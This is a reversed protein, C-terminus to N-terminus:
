TTLWVLAYTSRDVSAQNDAIVIEAGLSKVRDNIPSNFVSQRFIKYDIRTFAPDQHQLFLYLDPLTFCWRGQAVSFCQEQRIKELRASDQQAVQEFFCVLAEEIATVTFVMAIIKQGVGKM